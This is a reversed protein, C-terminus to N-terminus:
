TSPTHTRHVARNPDPIRTTDARGLGDEFFGAEGVVHLDLHSTPRQHNRRDDPRPQAPSLGCAFDRLATLVMQEVFRCWRAEVFLLPPPPSARRSGNEM